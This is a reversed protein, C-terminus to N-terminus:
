YEHQDIAPRRPALGVTTPGAPTASPVIHATAARTWGTRAAKAWAGRPADKRGIQTRYPQGSEVVPRPRLLTRLSNDVWQPWPASGFATKTLGSPFM